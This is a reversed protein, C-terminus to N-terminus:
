FLRDKQQRKKYACTSEGDDLMVGVYISQLDSQSMAQEISTHNNSEKANAIIINSDQPFTCKDYNYLHCHYFFHMSQLDSLSMASEISIHNVATMSQLQVLIEDYLSVKDWLVM